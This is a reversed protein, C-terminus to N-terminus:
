EERRDGEEDGCAVDGVDEEGWAEGWSRIEM